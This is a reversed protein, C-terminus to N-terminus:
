LLAGSYLDAYNINLFMKIQRRLVALKGNELYRAVVESGSMLHPQSLNLLHENFGKRFKHTQNNPALGSKIRAQLLVFYSTERKSTGLIRACRIGTETTVHVSALKLLTAVDM